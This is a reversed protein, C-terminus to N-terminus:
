WARDHRRRFDAGILKVARRSGDQPVTTPDRRAFDILSSRRQLRGPGPERSNSCATATVATRASRRGDSEAVCAPAGPRARAQRRRARARAYHETTRGDSDRSADLDRAPRRRGDVRDTRRAWTRSIYALRAADTRRSGASPRAMSSHRDRGVPCTKGAELCFGHSATTSGTPASGAATPRLPLRRRARRLSPRHAPRAAVLLLCSARRGRTRHRAVSRQSSPTTDM